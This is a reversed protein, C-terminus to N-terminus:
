ITKKSGQVADLFEIDMTVFVDAGKQSRGGTKNFDGFFDQFDAFFEEEM